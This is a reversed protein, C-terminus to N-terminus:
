KINNALIVMNFPFLINKEYYTCLLGIVREQQATDISWM